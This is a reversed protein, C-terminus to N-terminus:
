KGFFVTNRCHLRSWLSDYIAVHLSVSKVVYRLYGRPLSVSKVAFWLNDRPLYQICLQNHGRTRSLHRLIIRKISQLHSSDV